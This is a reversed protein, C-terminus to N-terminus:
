DTAPVESEDWTRRRANRGPVPFAAHDRVPNAEPRDPAEQQGVAAAPTAALLAAVLLSDTVTSVLPRFPISPQRLM